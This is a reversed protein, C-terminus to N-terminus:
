LINGPEVRGIVTAEMFWCCVWPYPDNLVWEDCGVLQSKKIIQNFVETHVLIKIFCNFISLM